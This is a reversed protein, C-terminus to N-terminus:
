KESNPFVLSVPCMLRTGVYSADSLNGCRDGATCYPYAYTFGSSRKVRYTGSSPGEPNEFM